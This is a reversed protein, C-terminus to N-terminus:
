ADKKLIRIKQEIDEKITKIYNGCYEFYEKLMNDRIQELERKTHIYKEGYYCGGLRGSKIELGLCQCIQGKLIAIM